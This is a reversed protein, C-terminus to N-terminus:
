IVNKKQYEEFIDDSLILIERSDKDKGMGYKWSPFVQHFDKYLERIEPSNNYSLIWKKRNKLLNFLAMHNFNKHTDGKNGYLTNKIMYPPDLYLLSDPHLPISEEFDKCEVTFNKIKFKSLRDISSQNFRPHNPSMGGSLTSGNFSTRNLVFFQAAMEELDKESTHSKQLKYFSEKSLPYYKQVNKVLREPNTLLKQWFCVLPFFVDYAVVSIGKSACALEISAGGVFPAVIEKTNEPIYPLILDVAKSKGGPYRLVSKQM